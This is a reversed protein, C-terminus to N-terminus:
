TETLMWVGTWGPPPPDIAYLDLRSLLAQTPGDAPDIALAREFAARAGAWDSSRYAALGEAYAERLALRPPAVMGHRGLVEFLRVAPGGGPWAVLDIERLELGPGILARAGDTVLLDTGYARNAREVAQALNVAAGVVTYHQDVASGIDGVVIAGAAIGIRLRVGADAAASRWGIEQALREFRQLQDLAAQAAREAHDGIGTFPPGFFATLGDAMVKDVVGRHEGIPESIATLYANLAAVLDDPELRDAIPDFGDLRASVITMDRKAVRKFMTEDRTLSEVIKPDVYKGFSDHIRAQQRLGDIMANFAQMLRGIEDSAAPKVYVDMRGRGVEGLAAALAALSRAAGTGFAHAFWWGILLVAAALTGSIAYSAFEPGGGRRITAQIFGQLEDAFGDLALIVADNSRRFAPLPLAGPAPVGSKFLGAVAEAIRRHDRARQVAARLAEALRAVPQARHTSQEMVMPAALRAAMAELAQDLRDSKALLAEREAAVADSRPAADGALDTLREVHLEIERQNQQAQRLLEDLPLHLRGLSDLDDKLRIVGMHAHVIAALALLVLVTSVGIIKIRLGHTM